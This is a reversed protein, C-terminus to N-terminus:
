KVKVVIKGSAHGSESLKHALQVGEKTFPFVEDIVVKIEGDAVLNAIQKLQEPEITYGLRKASINRENAKEEDFPTTITLARGGEKVVPLTETGKGATDILVDVQNKYKDVVDEKEYNVIEDVGLTELLEENQSTTAIVHAGKQKAFQIAYTGVGGSGSQILVKEEDKLQHPEKNVLQYATLAAIGLSAAEEFSVGEPKTLVLDESVAVYEAFGGPTGLQKSTFVQDGIEFDRVNDGIEVVIGSIDVGLIAPFGDEMEMKGTRLSIDVPNIATAHIEILVENAKVEPKDMDKEVFEQISGPAEMVVTKM